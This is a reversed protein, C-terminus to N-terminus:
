IFKLFMFVVLQKIANFANYLFCFVLFGVSDPYETTYRTQRASLNQSKSASSFGWLCFPRGDRSLRGAAHLAIAEVADSSPFDTESSNAPPRARSFPGGSARRRAFVPPTPPAPPDGRGGCGRKQRPDPNSRHSASRGDLVAL